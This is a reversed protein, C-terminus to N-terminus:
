KDVKGRLRRCTVCRSIMEKVASNGQIVWYGSARIENLTINRGSHATKQHCWRIIMETLKGKKPLIVPHMVKEDLNSQQLRGGVRILGDEGVHPNLSGISDRLKKNRHGDLVMFEENFEKRKRKGVVEAIKLEVSLVHLQTPRGEEVNTKNVQKRVINVWRMVWATVRLLKSWSSIRNQVTSRIGEDGASTVHM